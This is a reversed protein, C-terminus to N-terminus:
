IIGVGRSELSELASLETAGYYIMTPRQARGRSAIFYLMKSCNQFWRKANCIM